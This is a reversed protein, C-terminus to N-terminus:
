NVPLLATATESPHKDTASYRVSAIVSISLRANEFGGFIRRVQKKFQYKSMIIIM